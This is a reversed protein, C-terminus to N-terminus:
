PNAMRKKSNINSSNKTGMKQTSSGNLATNASQQSSIANSDSGISLM